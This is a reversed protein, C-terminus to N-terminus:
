LPVCGSNNSWIGGMILSLPIRVVSTVHWCRDSSSGIADPNGIEATLSVKALSRMNRLGLKDLNGIVEDKSEVIEAALRSERHGQSVKSSGM